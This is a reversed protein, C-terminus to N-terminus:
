PAILFAGGHEYQSPPTDYERPSLVCPPNGTDKQIVARSPFGSTGVISFYYTHGNASGSAAYSHTPSPNLGSWFWFSVDVCDLPINTGAYNATGYGGPLDTSTISIKNGYNTTGGGTIVHGDPVHADAVSATASIIAVIVAGLLLFSRGIMPSEKKTNSLHSLSEGGSACLPPM